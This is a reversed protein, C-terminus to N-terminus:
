QNYCTLILKGKKADYDDTDNDVVLWLHQDYLKSLLILNSVLDILM